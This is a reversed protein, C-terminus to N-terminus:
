RGRRGPSFSPRSPSASPRSPSFSPRSPSVSPRSPQVSPSVSPRPSASPRSPQAAPRSPQAAPRPQVSPSVAPRPQAAPRSPQVDPRPQVAPRSPAVDPRSAHSPAVRPSDAHDRHAPAANIAGRHDREMHQPSRGAPRDAPAATFSRGQPQMTRAQATTSRRSYAIARADGSVRAKPAASEPIRAEALSPGAPRRFGASAGGRAGAGMKAGGVASPRAPVYARSHAGIRAVISRDRVVYTNVSRHFVYTSPCFVYATSPSVWVNVASGGFWYYSPAMPAWGIYGYDTTRWVVWAPAYTRGPIWSWGRGGIWVWRGYHFPIHGWNYDSIWIWDGNADLDWHGATQYPAFDAGVVASSPIWVTGYTPDDVWAGYPTLPDRFDALAAPDTDVYEDDGVTVSVDASVSQTPQFTDQAEAVPAAPAQEDSTYGQPLGAPTDARVAAPTFALAALLLSLLRPVLRQGKRPELSAPCKSTEAFPMANM